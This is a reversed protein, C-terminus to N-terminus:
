ADNTLSASEIWQRMPIGTRANGGIVPIARMTLGTRAELLQREVYRSMEPEIRLGFQRLLARQIALANM